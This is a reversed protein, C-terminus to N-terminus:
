LLRAAQLTARVRNLDVIANMAHDAPFILSHYEAGTCQATWEADGALYRDGFLEIIKCGRPCWVTNNL